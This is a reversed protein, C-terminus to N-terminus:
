GFSGFTIEVIGAFHHPRNSKALGLKVLLKFHSKWFLSEQRVRFLWRSERLVFDVFIMAGPIM